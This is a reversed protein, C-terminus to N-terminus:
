NGNNQEGKYRNLFKVGFTVEMPAMRSYWPTESKDQTHCRNPKEEVLDRVLMHYNDLDDVKVGANAIDQHSIKIGNFYVFDNHIECGTDIAMVRKGDMALNNVNNLLKDRLLNFAMEDKENPFAMEDDLFDTYRQSWDTIKPQKDSCDASIPPIYASHQPRDLANKEEACRRIRESNERITKDIVEQLSASMLKGEQVTTKFGEVKGSLKGMFENFSINAM